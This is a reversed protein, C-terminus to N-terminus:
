IDLLLDIVEDVGLKGSGDDDFGGMVESAFDAPFGANEFASTLEDKSLKGDGSTDAQKILNRADELTAVYTFDLFEEKSIV